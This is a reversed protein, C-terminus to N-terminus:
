EAEILSVVCTILGTAAVRQLALSTGQPIIINSSTSLHYLTDATACEQFFLTGTSTLGTIDVGQEITATPIRSSGLNRNVPTITTGGAQTGTVVNINVATAVSSSIRIDSIRLDKTGTNKVYFFYDNAGTPTNTFYLSWVGGEENIHRDDPVSVSFVHLRNESDVEAGHPTGVASEIQEGM